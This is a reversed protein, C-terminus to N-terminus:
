ARVVDKGAGQLRWFFRFGLGSVRLGLRFGLIRLSAEGGRVGGGGGFPVRLGYIRFGVGLPPIREGNHPRRKRGSVVLSGIIPDGGRGGCVGFAERSSPEHSM